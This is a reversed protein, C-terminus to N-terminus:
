LNREGKPWLPMPLLFTLEAYGLTGVHHTIHIYTKGKEWTSVALKLQAPYVM